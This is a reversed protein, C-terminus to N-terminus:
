DSPGASVFAIRRRARSLSPKIELAYYRANVAPHAVGIFRSRTCQRGAAAARGAAVAAANSHGPATLSKTIAIPSRPFFFIYIYIYMAQLKILEADTAAARLRARLTLREIFDASRERANRAGYYRRTTGVHPTKERASRFRISRHARM